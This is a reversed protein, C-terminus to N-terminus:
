TNDDDGDGMTSYEKLYSIMITNINSNNNARGDEEDEDNDNNDSM